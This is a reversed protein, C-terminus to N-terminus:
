TATNKPQSALVSHLEQVLKEPEFPKLIFREAGARLGASIEEEQGKASLFIVPTACTAPNAKLQACAEYGTMFPMRVDLLILDFRETQATEVAAVGDAVSLVDFGYYTLTIEILERIDDDDEAILIKAV